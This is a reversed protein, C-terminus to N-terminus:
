KSRVGDIADRRGRTESGHIIEPRVFENGRGETKVRVEEKEDEAQGM